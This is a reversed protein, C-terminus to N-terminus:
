YRQGRHRYKRRPHASQSHSQTYAERYRKRSEELARQYGPSGMITAAVGGRASAPTIHSVATAILLLLFFVAARKTRCNM